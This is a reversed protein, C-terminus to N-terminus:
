FHILPINLIIEINHQIDPTKPAKQKATFASGWTMLANLVFDVFSM